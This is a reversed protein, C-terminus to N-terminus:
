LGHGRGNRERRAWEQSLAIKSRLILALIAKKQTCHKDCLYCMRLRSSPTVGVEMRVREAGHMGWASLTLESVERGGDVHCATQLGENLSSDGQVRGQDVPVTSRARAAPLRVNSHTVDVAYWGWVPGEIAGIRHQHSGIGHRVLHEHLSIRDPNAEKVVLVALWHLHSRRCFRDRPNVDLEVLM